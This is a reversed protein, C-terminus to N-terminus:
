YQTSYMKKFPKAFFSTPISVLTKRRNKAHREMGQHTIFQYTIHTDKIDAKEYLDIWEKKSLSANISDRYEKKMLKNYTCGLINVHLPIAFVPIRILDRILLAGDQKVVRKTEKLLDLPEPIHHITQHCFVCDFSNDAFPLQKADSKKFRVRDAVGATDANKKAVILMNDSLDVGTVQANQNHVAVGIAIRGTGCGVELFTGTEPAANIVSEIFGNHLIGIYKLSLKDYAYVEELTEMSESEMVRKKYWAM